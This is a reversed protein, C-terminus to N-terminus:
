KSKPKYKCPASKQVEQNAYIRIQETQDSGSYQSWQDKM